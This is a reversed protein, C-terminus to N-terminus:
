KGKKEDETKAPATAAQILTTLIASNKANSFPNWSPSLNGKSDSFLDDEIKFAQAKEIITILFLRIDSDMTKLQSISSLVQDLFVGRTTTPTGSFVGRVSLNLNPTKQDFGDYMEKLLRIYYQAVVEKLIRAHEEDLQVFLGKIKSLLSTATNILGSIDELSNVEHKGEMFERFVEWDHSRNIYENYSIAYQGKVLVDWLPPLALWDDEALEVPAFMYYSSTISVDLVNRVILARLANANGRAFNIEPRGLGPPVSAPAFSENPPLLEIV